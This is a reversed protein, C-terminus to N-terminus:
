ILNIKLDGFIVLVEIIIKKNKNDANQQNLLENMGKISGLIAKTNDIILYENLIDKNINLKVDGFVNLGSININENSSYFSKITYKSDGFINLFSIKNLEENNIEKEFDGFVNLSDFNNDENIKLSFKSKKFRFFGFLVIIGLYILFIAFFIKFLDYEIILVKTNKLILFVGLLLILIGLFTSYINKSFLEIGLLIFIIPWFAWINLNEDVLNLSQFLLFLGIFLIIVGWLIGSKVKM